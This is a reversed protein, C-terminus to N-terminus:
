ESITKLSELNFLTHYFSNDDTYFGLVQKYKIVALCANLANLESIQINNRYIDDAPDTLPVINKELTDQPNEKSFYVTRLMGSISGEKRDLGMGVDIFPIKMKILVDLIDARSSGKDVCIFAFTVGQLEETSDSLIKKSNLNVGSRFDEYRKQYVEAKRKGLEDEEIKGPSRFANHVHFSDLDFGRIEKVPTKVLFDLVYSGTGGLGIIAIVEENFKASLDGIEARSTLTDRYKFVSEGAAEVTRFTWPHAKNGYLEIAPGCIIYVYTEVKEYFDTYGNGPKHSFNRQVVLDASALALTAPGGGMNQIPTGDMQCPHSGCFLMQHDHLRIQKKDVDVVKSILSGVQLIKNEDLYSVDRVVLYDSDISLAYGKELLQRIDPNHEALATVMSM